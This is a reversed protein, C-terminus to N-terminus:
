LRALVFSVQLRFNDERGGNNFEENRYEGKLAAYPSFDWRVGLIAAEYDLGQDGLLPDSDDVDTLEYRVYPKWQRKQAALRYAFQVYWADVNGSVSSDAAFEHESHLYEAIFEPREKEWAVYASFTQEDIEPRDGPTVTDTYFGIGTQLGFFRSPSANLQLMWADDGNIDGADGAQAINEHRGNGFGAMYSLGLKNKPMSGELLVGVFHIPVIKSGFKVMEPRSVTTQLWAGHHFASNWYGIPSHYRGGSLKFTDSFDYRVIMREVSAKYENDKATMSFEGFVRLSDDLSATLHAVAQGIAFGNPESASRSLYSIDGFGMFNFEPQSTEAIATAVIDSHASSRVGEALVGEAILGCALFAISYRWRATRKM